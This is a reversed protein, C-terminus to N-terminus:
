PDHVPGLGKEGAPRPLREQLHVEINHFQEPFAGHVAPRRGPDKPGTRKHGERCQQGENRHRREAPLLCRKGKGSVDDDKACQQRKGSEESDNRREVGTGGKFPHTRAPFCQEAGEGFRGQVQSQRSQDAM